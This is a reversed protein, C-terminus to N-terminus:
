RLRFRVPILIREPIAIGDKLAPSFRWLRATSLAEDDLLPSGASRDVSVGTVSGDDGVVLLLWVTGEIGAREAAAPYSPPRNTSLPHSPRGGSTRPAAPPSSPGAPGSAGTGVPSAPRSSRAVRLGLPVRDDGRPAPPEERALALLDDEPPVPVADVPDVPRPPTLDPVPPPLEAPLAPAPAEDWAPEPLFQATVVSEVPQRPSPAAATLAAYAVLGGHLLASLLFAPRLLFPTKM